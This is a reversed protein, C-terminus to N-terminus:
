DPSSVRSASTYPQLTLVMQVERSVSTSIGFGRLLLPPTVMHCIRRMEFQGDDGTQIRRELESMIEGCFELLISPMSEPGPNPWLEHSEGFLAMLARARSNMHLVRSSSSLLIVGSDSPDLLAPQLNPAVASRYSSPRAQEIPHSPSSLQEPRPM